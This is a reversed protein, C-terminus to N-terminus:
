REQQNTLFMTSNLLQSVKGAEAILEATKTAVNDYTVGVVTLTVTYETNLCLANDGNKHITGTPELKIM